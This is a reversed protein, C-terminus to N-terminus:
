GLESYFFKLSRLERPHKIYLEEKKAHVLHLFLELLENFKKLKWNM